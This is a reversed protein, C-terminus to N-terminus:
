MEKLDKYIEEDLEFDINLVYFFFAIYSRLKYLIAVVALSLGVWLKMYCVIFILAIFALNLIPLLYNATPLKQIESNSEQNYHNILTLM